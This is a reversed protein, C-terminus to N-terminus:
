AEAGAAVREAPAEDRTLRGDELTVIRDALELIRNDHTVMLTTTGRERGLARLM